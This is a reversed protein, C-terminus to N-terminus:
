LLGLIQRCVGLLLLAGIALAIYNRSNKYTRLSKMANKCALFAYTASVLMLLYYIGIMIRVWFLGSGPGFSDLAIYSALSSLVAYGLALLAYKLNKVSQQHDAIEKFEEELM